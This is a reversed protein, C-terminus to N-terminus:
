FKMGITFPLLFAQQTFLMGGKVYISSKDNISYKLGLNLETHNSGTGNVYQNWIHDYGIKLNVFPTLKTKFPLYDIDAFVSLGNIGEFNLYGLGIGTFLKKNFFNLGHVSNFCLGNQNKSLYYGKWSTGPEYTVTEYRYKM